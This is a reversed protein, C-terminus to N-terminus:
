RAALFEIHDNERKQQVIGPVEHLHGQELLHRRLASAAILVQVRPAKPSATMM